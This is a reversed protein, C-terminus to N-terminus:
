VTAPGPGFRGPGSQNPEPRAIADSATKCCFFVHVPHLPRTGQGGSANGVSMDPNPRIITGSALQSASFFMFPTCPASGRGAPPM